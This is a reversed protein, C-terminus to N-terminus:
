NLVNGIETFVTSTKSGVTQVAAIMFVAILSAILAYEIATAGAENTLFENVLNM